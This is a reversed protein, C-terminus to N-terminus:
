YPFTSNSRYFHSVNSTIRQGAKIPSSKAAAYEETDSEDEPIGGGLNVPTAHNQLAAVHQRATPALPTEPALDWSALAVKQVPRPCPCPRPQIAQPGQTELIEPIDAARKASSKAKNLNTAKPLPLAEYLDSEPSSEKTAQKTAALM